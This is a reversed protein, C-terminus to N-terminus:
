KPFYIYTFSRWGYIYKIVTEKEAKSRWMGEVKRKHGGGGGGGCLFDWKNINTYSWTIM